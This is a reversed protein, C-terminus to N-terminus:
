DGIEGRMRQRDPMRVLGGQEPQGSGDPGYEEHAELQKEVDVIEHSRLAARGGDGELGLHQPHKGGIVAAPDDRDQECQGGV